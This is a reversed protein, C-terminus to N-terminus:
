RLRLSPELQQKMLGSFVPFVKPKAKEKLSPIPKCCRRPLRMLQIRNPKKSKQNSRIKNTSCIVSVFKTFFSRWSPSLQRLSTLQRKKKSSKLHTKHKSTFNFDMFSSSPPTSRMFTEKSILSSPCIQSLARSLTISRALSFSKTTFIKNKYKKKTSFSGYPQCQRHRSSM